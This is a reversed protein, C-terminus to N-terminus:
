GGASGTPGAGGANGTPGAGGASGTPGAGGANPMHLEVETGTGPASRIVARGGHQHIRGNISDEIGRHEHGNHVTPVFGRGRDRVVALLGGDLVEAYVAVQPVGAHRAANVLAERVAGVVARTPGDLPCTGVTAVDVAVDFHDEVEEAVARLAAAFDDGGAPPAGYLWARLERETRRTMGRVATADDARKHILTLSQLVSDHLHAAMEAREEARVRAARERTVTRALLFTWPLLAAGILTVAGAGLIALMAVPTSEDGSVDIVAALAVGSIAVLGALAVVRRFVRDAKPESGLRHAVLVVWPGIALGVVVVMVAVLVPLPPPSTREAALLFLWFGILGLCGLLVLWRTTLRVL